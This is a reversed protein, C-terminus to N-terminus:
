KAVVIVISYLGHKDPFYLNGDKDATKWDTRCSGPLYPTVFTVSIDITEGPQTEPIPVMTPSSCILSSAPTIRKLYRDKWVVNGTNKVRWIKEFKTNIPIPTGDPITVDEIFLTSDEQSAVITSNAAGSSQFVDTIILVTVTLILACLALIPLFWATKTRTLIGNNGLAKKSHSQLLDFQNENIGLSESIRRKSEASPAEEGNIIRYFQTKSVGSEWIIHKSLVRRNKRAAKLADSLNRPM